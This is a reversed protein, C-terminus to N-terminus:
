ILSEIADVDFVPIGLKEKAEDREKFYNDILIAEDEKIYKYKKDDEAIHLVEDFLNRSLRYKALSEDLDYAHKTILVVKKNEQICKYIFALAILNVKDNIILTDDYDIYVISYDINIKYKNELKRELKLSLDNNIIKVDIDMADFVSLLAFNIGNQRYLAMTGAQRVSVELLKLEGNVDRKLQFFWAGRMAIKSNIISAIKDIETDKYTESCFSIGMQIRKRTRAGSFLLNGHRDTFCDVTYEAGPLYEVIIDDKQNELIYVLEEKNNIIQVGKAGEGVNPKSFVPYETVEDASNHVKPAFYEEKLLDYTIRKNRCINATEYSSTVITANIQNRKEALVLAVTDHTPIVLDIEYQKIKDNFKDVFNDDFIFLDDLIYNEKPYVFTSYDERSTAGFVNFNVNYKLSDYIELANESGCPFILINKKKMFNYGKYDFM